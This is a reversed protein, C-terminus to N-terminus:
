TFPISISARLLCFIHVFNFNRQPFLFVSFVVIETWIKQSSEFEFARRHAAASSVRDLSFNKRKWKWNSETEMPIHFRPAKLKFITSNSSPSILSLLCEKKKHLLEPKERKRDAATRRASNTAPYKNIKQRGFSERVILLPAVRENSYNWSSFLRSLEVM